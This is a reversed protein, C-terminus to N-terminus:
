GCITCMWTDDPLVPFIRLDGGEPDSGAPLEHPELVVLLSALGHDGRGLEPDDVAEVIARAEDTTVV